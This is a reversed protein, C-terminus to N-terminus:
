RPFRLKRHIIQPAPIPIGLSASEPDWSVVVIALIEPIDSPFLPFELDFLEYM